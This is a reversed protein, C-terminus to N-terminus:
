GYVSDSGGSECEREFMWYNWYRSRWRLPNELMTVVHLKDPFTHIGPRGQSPHDIYDANERGEQHQLKWEDSM